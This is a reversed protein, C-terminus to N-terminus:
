EVNPSTGPELRTSPSSNLVHKHHGYVCMCVQQCVCVCHCVHARTYMQVARQLRARNPRPPTSITPPLTAPASPMALASPMDDERMLKSTHGTSRSMASEQTARGTSGQAQVARGTTQKLHARLWCSAASGKEERAAGSAQVLTRRGWPGAMGEKEAREVGVRAGNTHLCPLAAAKICWIAKTHVSCSVEARTHGLM